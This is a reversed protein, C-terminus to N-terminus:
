GLPVHYMADYSVHMDNPVANGTTVTTSHYHPLGEMGEEEEGGEEEHSATCVYAADGEEGDGGAMTSSQSPMPPLSAETVTAAVLSQAQQAHSSIDGVAATAGATVTSPSKQQTVSSAGIYLRNLKERLQEDDEPPAPLPAFQHYLTTLQSKLEQIFSKLESILLQLIICNHILVCM